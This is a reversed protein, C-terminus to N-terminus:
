IVEVKIERKQLEEIFPEIEEISDIYLYMVGLIGDQTNHINASVISFPIANNRACEYLVPEGSHDADFTIRLLYGSPFKSKLEEKTEEVDLGTDTARILKKTLAHKLNYFVDSVKGEEIIKGDAMVVLRHCIKQVAEMQHTIMIITIGTEENIKKLLSLIDDTTKPDLASTAEDSLLYKPKLALARAIAVRQKQGGSLSSPYNDGKDSLGVLNLLEDVRKNRAEKNIHAIELPFAINERVTRSWLLNFNQFIMSINQRFLSLEKGKLTTVEKKDIEISGNDPKELANFMRVLTSKGAGSYGVIGFIEGDKITLSIDDCAKMVGDKTKFSKNLNKIEIM